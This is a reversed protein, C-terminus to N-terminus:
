CKGWIGASSARAGSEARRMTHIYRDNPQFLVARAYGELVVDQNIFRGQANWIYRLARGYRDRDERDSVLYVSSGEPLRSRLFERSAVAGCEPRRASDSFLEPADIELLRVKHREGKALSGSSVAVVWITDGDIVSDVVAPQAEAPVSSPPPGVPGAVTVDDACGALAVLAACVWLVSRLLTM